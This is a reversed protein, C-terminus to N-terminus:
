KDCSRRAYIFEIRRNKGGINGDTRAYLSDIGRRAYSVSQPYDHAPNSFTVSSDTLTEETFEALKQGSPQAVFVLKGSREVIRTFEYNTTSDGGPGHRITRGLGMM